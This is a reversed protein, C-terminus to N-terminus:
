YNYEFTLSAVNTLRNGAIAISRNNQGIAFWIASIDSRPDIGPIVYQMKKQNPDGEPIVCSSFSTVIFLCYM